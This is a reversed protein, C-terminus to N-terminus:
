YIVFQILNLKPVVSKTTIKVCLMSREHPYISMREIWFSECCFHNACFVIYENNYTCADPLTNPTEAECVASKSRNYLYYYFTCSCHEYRCKVIHFISYLIHINNVSYMTKNAERLTGGLYQKIACFCCLWHSVWVRQILKAM